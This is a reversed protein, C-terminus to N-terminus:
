QKNRRIKEKLYLAFYDSYREQIDELMWDYGTIIKRCNKSSCKCDFSYEENDLFAYDICLEERKSINRMAVFTIEGKLGCNPDCSHNIWLKIDNEEESDIAGLYYDDGLPHYSNIVTSAYLEDKRLLHGGKIFVVEGCFIHERAFM